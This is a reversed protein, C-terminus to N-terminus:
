IRMNLLDFTSWWFLFLLSNKYSGGMSYVCLPDNSLPGTLLSFLLVISHVAVEVESHHCDKGNNGIRASAGRNEVFFCHPDSALRSISNLMRTPLAM